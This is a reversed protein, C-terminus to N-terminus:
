CAPRGLSQMQLRQRDTATGAYGAARDDRTQLQRASRRPVGNLRKAIGMRPHKLEGLQQSKCGNPEPRFQIVRKTSNIATFFGNIFAISIDSKTDSKHTSGDL